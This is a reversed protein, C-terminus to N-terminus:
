RTARLVWEGQPLGQAIDHVRCAVAEAFGADRMADLLDWGFHHYCLAGGSVPDGHYEPDGVHETGGQGDAQAIQVSHESADYFPVTLVLVGGRKLVRAFERLAARYDPVHELVDQSVVADRSAARLGLETADEARIFEPAGHRWLWLTFYLRRGLGLGYESGKVKAYRRRMALYFASAQETLYLSPYKRGSM